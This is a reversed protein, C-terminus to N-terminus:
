RRSAQQAILTHDGRSATPMEIPSITYVRRYGSAFAEAALEASCAGHPFAFDEIPQGLLEQLKARSDILERRAESLALDTLRPHTSSHSALRCLPVGAMQQLQAECVTAETADPHDPAIDWKPLCGLNDTVVFVMVPIGLERTVPLAHDLLNAFGDDFTVCVM